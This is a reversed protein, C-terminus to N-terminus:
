KLSINIVGNTTSSRSRSGNHEIDVVVRGETELKCALGQGIFTNSYPVHGDLSIVAEDDNTRTLTCSGAFRADEDGTLQVHYTVDSMAQGSLSYLVVVVVSATLSILVKSSKVMIWFGKLPM